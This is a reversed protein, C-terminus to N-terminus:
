QFYWALIQQIASEGGTAGTFGVYATPGGVAAPIDITFSHPWFALTVLDTLILTLTTGDYTIYVDMAHGSHLNITTSTLDIAPLIPAKGDVYIGVSDPGEGANNYLDFKIAVSDHIGAYGLGGGHGGLATPGANQITFTFGDAAANTLQFNFDTSFAQINVPTAYYASGAEGLGGDTLELSGGTLAASGNLELGSAPSFGAGYYPQIQSEYSWTLIQQTAGLGGTAGTFGIYATSSGVTIPINVIFLHSWTAHTTLDTLTLVLTSGQYTIHADMKDGSHLNIGSGTLDISPVIPSVGNAYLGTSNTGEGDNNYLDFKIALSNLIGFYGLNGGNAGLATPGVNQITFTFGDAHPNTLLFTFDTTFSQINVPTAYFASGAQDLAGDTLQLSGSLAASGNLTLGSASSFDTSFSTAPAPEFVYVADVIAENAICVSYGFYNYNGDVLTADPLSSSKWGGTQPMSFVFVSKSGDEDGVAIRSSDIAVSVGFMSDDGNRDNTAYTPALLVATETMNAWGTSPMQFVVAAGSGSSVGPAGVAIVTGDIAVALGFEDEEFGPYSRTLIATQTANKWGASPKVFVYAEGSEGGQQAQQGQQAQYAAGVVITDGSVAVSFGFYSATVGDSATLEANFAGTSAWGGPPKLFVYAAGTQVGDVAADSDGLVITDGDIAVSDCSIGETLQATETMNTWQGSAPEVFVYAKGEPTGVGAGVVITGGSIAVSTGFGPNGDSPTLKAVQVMSQWGDAPKQYVYVYGAHFSGLVVTNGSAAAVGEVKGTATLQAVVTYDTQASAARTSLIVTAIIISAFLLRIRLM